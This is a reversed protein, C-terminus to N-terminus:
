GPDPNQAIYKLSRYVEWEEVDQVGSGQGLDDRGKTRQNMMVSVIHLNVRSAMWGDQM